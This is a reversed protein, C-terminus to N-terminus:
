IHDIASAVGDIVRVSIIPALYETTWDSPDAPTVADNVAQTAADGRVACGAAQLAAVLGPLAKDAIAQDVLLTEAAGCVSTRRMKANVAVQVAMDLDAAGDVYVHCLGDLHALVPVRSEAMVREILSKGGRPILVDILDPRTLMAGVAARDRTPVLQIAAQPLGHEACAASLCEALVTSSNLSESGCRLIAANGAKLCLAGADATVNPRSEFIIGIVGLPVRVREINLGNPRDWAAMTEGVPDPLGAIDRVAAIVGAIRQDDLVLRDILPAATGNSKAASVDAKNAALLDAKRAEMHDAAAMLAATKRDASVTALIRAAARAEAGMEDILAAPNVTDAQATPAAPSSPSSSSSPSSM